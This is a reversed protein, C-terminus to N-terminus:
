GSSYICEASPPKHVETIKYVSRDYMKDLDSGPLKGHVCVSSLAPIYVAASIAHASGEAIRYKIVTFREYNVKM